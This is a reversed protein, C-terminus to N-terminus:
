EQCRLRSCKSVCPVCYKGAFITGTWSWIWYSGANGVLVKCTGPKSHSERLLKRRPYYRQQIYHFDYKNRKCRLQQWWDCTLRPYQNRRTYSNSIGIDCSPSCTAKYDYDFYNYVYDLYNYVHASKYIYASLDLALHSRRSCFDQTNGGTLVIM